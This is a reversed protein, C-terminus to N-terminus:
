LGELADLWSRVMGNDRGRATAVAQLGRQIVPILYPNGTLPNGDVVRAKLIAVLANYVEDRQAPAMDLAM